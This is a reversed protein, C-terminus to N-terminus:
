RKKLKYISGIRTLTKMFRVRKSKPTFAITFIRVEKVGAARLAYECAKVTAGTTYVDDFLLVRRCGTLKERDATFMGRANKIRQSASLLKQEQAQKNRTIASVTKICLKSAIASSIEKAQDFGYKVINKRTRPPYVICDYKKDDKVSRYVLEAIFDATERDLRHKVAAIVAKSVPTYYYFLFGGGKGCSREKREKKCVPCSEDFLTCFKEMCEACVPAGLLTVDGCIMCKDPMILKGLSLTVSM